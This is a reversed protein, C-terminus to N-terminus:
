ELPVFEYLQKIDPNVKGEKVLAFNVDVLSPRELLFDQYSIRISDYYRRATAHDPASFRILWDFEGNLYLVDIIRVHQKSPEGMIIRKLMIDALEKTMPKMKMVVLYTVHNLKSEDIVATYGWIVHDEELRKKRRWIKQRYLKLKKTMENISQTPDRLLQRLVPDDKGIEKISNSATTKDTM